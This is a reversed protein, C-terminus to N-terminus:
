KEPKFLLVGFFLYTTTRVKELASKLPDKLDTWDRRHVVKGCLINNILIILSYVTIIIIM